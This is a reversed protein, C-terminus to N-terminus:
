PHQQRYQSPTMGTQACFAEFFGNYSSYGVEEAITELSLSGDLIMRKAIDIRSHTLQERFSTGYYSKLLRQTQSVSLHLQEALTQLSPEEKYFHTFYEDMLDMYFEPPIESRYHEKFIPRDPDFLISYPDQPPKADKADAFNRLFDTYFLNFLGEIKDAAFSKQLFFEERIKRLLTVLDTEGKLTHPMKLSSLLADTFLSPIDKTQNVSFRLSFLAADESLYKVNHENGAPIFFIDNEKCSFLRDGCLIESTGCFTIYLEHNLHRHAKPDRIHSSLFFGQDLVTQIRINQLRTTEMCVSKGKNIFWLM